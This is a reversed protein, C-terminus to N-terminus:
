ENTLSTTASLKRCYGAMSAACVDASLDRTHFQQCLVRKKPGAEISDGLRDRLFLKRILEDVGIDGHHDKQCVHYSERAVQM